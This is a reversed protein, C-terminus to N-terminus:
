RFPDKCEDVLRCLDGRIGGSAMPALAAPKTSQAILSYGVPWLRKPRRVVADFLTHKDLDRDGQPFGLALIFKVIVAFIFGLSTILGFVV